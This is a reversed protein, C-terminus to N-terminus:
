GLVLLVTLQRRHPSGIANATALQTTAILAQPDESAVFPRLSGAAFLLNAPASVKALHMREWPTGLKGSGLTLPLLM